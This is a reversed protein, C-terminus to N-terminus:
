PKGCIEDKLEKALGAANPYEKANFVANQQGGAIALLEANHIKIGVGVALMTINESAAEHSAWTTAAVSCALSIFYDM